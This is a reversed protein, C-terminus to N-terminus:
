SCQVTEDLTRERKREARPKLTTLARLTSRMRAKSGEGSRGWVVGREREGM